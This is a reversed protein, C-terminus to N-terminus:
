GAIEAKRPRGVPNRKLSIELLQEVKKMFFESGWPMGLRTNERIQSIEKESIPVALYDSWREYDTIWLRTDILQIESIGTKMNGRCSSWRWREPTEVLGSRIPNLEVYRIAAYLHAEDLICSFYRQQWLHGVLGYKQNFYSSYHTNVTLFTKGMSDASRPIAVFHVHNPMLCYSLIELGYRQSAIDFLKMYRLHDEEDLFVERKNNGRQTIHHPYNILVRRALRPM